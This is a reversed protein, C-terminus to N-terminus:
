RLDCICHSVTTAHRNYAGYRYNMGAINLPCKDHKRCCHDAGMHGDLDSYTSALDDNGCWKTGPLIFFEKLIWRKRRSHPQKKHHKHKHTTTTPTQDEDTNHNHNHKELRRQARLAKKVARRHERCQARLNKFHLVPRLYQPLEEEQDLHQFTINNFSGSWSGAAGTRAVAADEEFRELFEAVEGADDSLRCDRLSLGEVSLDEAAEGIYVLTLLRHHHHVQRLVLGSSSGQDRGVSTQKAAVGKYHIRIEHQGDNLDDQAVFNPLSTALLSPLLTLLTLLPLLLLGKSTVCHPSM